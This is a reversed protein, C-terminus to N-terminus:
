GFMARALEGGEVEGKWGGGGGIARELEHPALMPPIPFAAAFAVPACAYM